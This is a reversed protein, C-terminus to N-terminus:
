THIHMHIYTWICTHIFFSHECITHIFILAHIHTNMHTCMYWPSYDLADGASYPWHFTSWPRARRSHGVSFTRIGHVIALYACRFTSSPISQRTHGVSLTGHVITCPILGPTHGMSLPGHIWPILRGGFITLSFHVM